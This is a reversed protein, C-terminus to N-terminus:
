RSSRALGNDLKMVPLSLSLQLLRGDGDVVVIMGSFTASEAESMRHAAELPVSRSMTVTVNVINGPDLRLPIFNKNALCDRPIGNCYPLGRYKTWDSIVTGKDPLFAADGPPALAVIPLKSTNSVQLSLSAEVKVGNADSSLPSITAAMVCALLPGDQRCGKTAEDAHLTSPSFVVCVLASVTACVRKM